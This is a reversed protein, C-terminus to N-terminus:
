SQRGSIDVDFCMLLSFVCVQTSFYFSSQFKLLTSSGRCTDTQQVILSSDFILYLLKLNMLNDELLSLVHNWMNATTTSHSEM